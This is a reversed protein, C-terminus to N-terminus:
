LSNLTEKVINSSMKGDYRGSYEEKLTKMIGGMTNNGTAVYSNIVIKLEDETLQKPLYLNLIDIEETIISTDKGQSTLADKTEIANKLFKRVVSVTEEDTTTRNGKNKGVMQAESFLTTLLNSKVTSHSKRALVNHDKITDLLSM